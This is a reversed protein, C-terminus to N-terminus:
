PRLTGSMKEARELDDLMQRVRSWRAQVDQACVSCIGRVKGSDAAKGSDATQQEVGVDEFHLGNGVVYRGADPHAGVHKVAAGVPHGNRCEIQLMVDLNQVDKYKRRSM